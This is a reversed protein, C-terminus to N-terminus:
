RQRVATPASASRFAGPFAAVAAVVAWLAAGLVLNYLVISWGSIPVPDFIRVRPGALMAIVVIPLLARFDEATGPFGDFGVM